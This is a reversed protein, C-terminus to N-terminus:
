EFDLNWLVHPGAYKIHNLVEHVMSHPYMNDRMWTMENIANDITKKSGFLGGAENEYISKKLLDLLSLFIYLSEKEKIFTHKSCTFCALVNSCVLSSKDGLGLKEQARISKKAEDSTKANSCVGGTSTRTAYKQKLLLLGKESEVMKIDAHEDYEGHREVNPTGSFLSLTHANMAAQLMQTNEHPNGDSYHKEVVPLSNGLIEKRELPDSFHQGYSDRLKKASLVIKEGYEGLLPSKRFLQLHSNVKPSSFSTPVGDETLHSFLFADDSPAIQESFSIIENLLKLQHKKLLHPKQSKSRKRKDVLTVLYEDREGQKIILDKRKLRMVPSLNAGTISIFVMMYYVMARSVFFSRLSKTLRPDKIKDIQHVHEEGKWTFKPNHAPFDSLDTHNLSLSVYSRAITLCFVQLDKFDKKSYARVQFEEEGQSDAITGGSIRKGQKALPPLLKNIQLESIGFCDRWLVRLIKRKNNFTSGTIVRTTVQRLFYGHLISISDEDSFLTIPNIEKLIKIAQSFMSLRAEKAASSLTLSSVYNCVKIVDKTFPTLVEKPFTKLLPTFDYTNEGEFETSYVVKTKLSMVGNVDRDCTLSSTKKAKIKDRAM